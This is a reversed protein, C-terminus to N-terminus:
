RAWLTLRTVPLFGLKEFGRRSYDSTFAVAPLEPRDDLRAQALAEWVGQRRAEPLTAALCLNQVGHAPHSAAAAVPRGALLGLRVLLPSGLVGAPYLPAGAAEPLPYAEAVVQGALALEEASCVVQVRDRDYPRAPQPPRVVFTPHGMLHWGRRGLDPTPWASLLTHGSHRAAMAEARDLLPDGEGELPRLLVTQNLYAVPTDFGTVVAGPLRVVEGGGATALLANLEAQNHLFQRLTSDEVPTDDLWGTELPRTDITTM